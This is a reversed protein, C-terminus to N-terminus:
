DNKRPWSFSFVEVGDWDLLSWTAARLLGEGLGWPQISCLSTSPDWLQLKWKWASAFISGTPPSYPIIGDCSSQSVRNESWSVRQRLCVFFVRPALPLRHTVINSFNNIALNPLSFSFLLSRKVGSFSLPHSPPLFYFFLRSNQHCVSLKRRLLSPPCLHLSFCVSCTLKPLPPWVKLWFFSFSM